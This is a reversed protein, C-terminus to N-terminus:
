FITKFDYFTMPFSSCIVRRVQGKMFHQQGGMFYSRCYM